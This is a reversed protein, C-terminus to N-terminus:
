MSRVTKKARVINIMSAALEIDKGGVNLTVKSCFEDLMVM